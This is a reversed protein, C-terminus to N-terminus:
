PKGEESSPQIKSLRSDRGLVAEIRVPTPHKLKPTQQKPSILICAISADQHTQIKISPEVDPPLMYSEQRVVKDDKLESRDIRDQLCQYRIKAGDASDPLLDFVGENVEPSTKQAAHVDGRFQEALRNITRCYELHERGANHSKLLAHLMLVAIGALMSSIGLAVIMEILTFGRRRNM